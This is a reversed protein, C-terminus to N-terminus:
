EDAADSTYLLCDLYWSQGKSDNVLKHAIYRSFNAFYVHAEGVAPHGAHRCLEPSEEYNRPKFTDATLKGAAQASFPINDRFTQKKKQGLYDRRSEDVKLWNKEDFTCKLVIPHLM